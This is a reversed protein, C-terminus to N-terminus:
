KNDARNTRPREIRAQSARCRRDPADRQVAHTHTHQRREPVGELCHLVIDISVLMVHVCCIIAHRCAQVHRRPGLTRIALNVRVSWWVDAAANLKKQVFNGNTDYVFVSFPLLIFIQYYCLRQVFKLFLKGLGACGALCIPLRSLSRSRARHATFLVHFLVNEM